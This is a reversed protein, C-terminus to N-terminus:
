SDAYFNFFQCFKKVALIQIVKTIMTLFPAFHEVIQQYVEGRHDAKEPQNDM